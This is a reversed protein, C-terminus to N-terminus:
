RKLALSGRLGREAQEGDAGQKRGVPVLAQDVGVDLAQLVGVEGPGVDSEDAAHVDLLLIEDRNDAAAMREPEAGDDAAGDGAAQGGGLEFGVVDDDALGFVEDGSEGAIERASGGKREVLGGVAGGHLM